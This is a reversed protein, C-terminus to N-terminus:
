MPSADNALVKKRLFAQVARDESLGIARQYAAGAEDVRGLESLLHARLAWYPQYASVTAEDVDDLLRLGEPASMAEAVAAAQGVRAGITPDVIVLGAYLGAVAMWDVEESYARRSHASQIAAELQYRGIRRARAATSLLTEAEEIM